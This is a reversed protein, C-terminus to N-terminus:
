LHRDVLAVARETEGMQDLAEAKAMDVFYSVHAEVVRRIRREVDELGISLRPVPRPETPSTRTRSNPPKRVGQGTAAFSQPESKRLLVVGVAILWAHSTGHAKKGVLM